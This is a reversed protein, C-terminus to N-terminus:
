SQWPPTAPSADGGNIRRDSHAPPYPPDDPDSAGGWVQETRCAQGRSRTAQPRPAVPRSPYPAPRGRDSAFPRHTRVVSEIESRQAPSYPSLPSPAKSA